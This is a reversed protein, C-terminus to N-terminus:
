SAKCGSRALPTMDLMGVLSQAGEPTISAKPLPTQRPGQLRSLRAPELEAM